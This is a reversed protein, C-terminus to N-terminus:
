CRAAGSWGASSAPVGWKGLSFPAPRRPWGGLSARLIAIGLLFYSLYILGTAAIALIAAGAYQVLPIAALCTVAICAIWPTHLKPSVTRLLSSAPLQDDRAMGFCLRMVNAQIALLCIFIAITVVALYTTAFANSFNADIVAWTSEDL